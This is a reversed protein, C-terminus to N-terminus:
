TGVRRSSVAFSPAGPGNHKVQRTEFVFAFPLSLPLPTKERLRMIIAAQPLLERHVSEFAFASQNCPAGGANASDDIKGRVLRRKHHAGLHQDITPHSKSPLLFDAKSSLAPPIVYTKAPPQL